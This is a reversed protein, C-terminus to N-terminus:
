MKPPGLASNMCSGQSLANKAGVTTTMVCDSVFSPNGEPGQQLSAMQFDACTCERKPTDNADGQMISAATTPIAGVAAVSNPNQPAGNPGEARLTLGANRSRGLRMQFSRVNDGARDYATDNTSVVGEMVPVSAFTESGVNDFYLGVGGLGSRTAGGRTELRSSNAEAMPHRQITHSLFFPGHRIAAVKRKIGPITRGAVRRM